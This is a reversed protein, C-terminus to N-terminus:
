LPYIREANRSAIAAVLDEARAATLVGEAIWADILRGLSRRFLLAGLYHLEALAYADSSYLLKGFPVFEMAEAIVRDAGIGMHPIALGVDMYVNPFMAALHAAQRLFPWCHLLTVDVGRVRLREVIPALLSPDSRHLVLDPDGFGTHFQIPFGREAALETGVEIGFRLLVPDELRGGQGAAKWSRAAAAVESPAPPDAPLELGIRYAVISKLGVADRSRGALEAALADAFEAEPVGSDLVETAVQEIRVVERVPRGARERMADLGIMGEETLGSDILLQSPGAGRLMRRSVEEAGIEARRELYSDPDAHPELGLLPACWRQIALGLPSDFATPGAADPLYSESMMVEFAARDLESEVVPHCHHDLLPVDELLDAM